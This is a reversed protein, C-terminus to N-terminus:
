SPQCPQCPVARGAQNAMRLIFQGIATVRSFDWEKEHERIYGHFNERENAGDGNQQRAAGACRRRTPNGARNWTRVPGGRLRKVAVWDHVARRVRGDDPTGLVVFPEHEVGAAAGIHRSQRASHGPHMTTGNADRCRVVAGCPFIEAVCVDDVLAGDGVFGVPRGGHNFVVTKEVHIEDINGADEVVPVM